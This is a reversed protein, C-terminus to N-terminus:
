IAPLKQVYKGATDTIAQWDHKEVFEKRVVSAGFAVAACGATFFDPMNEPRVGGVAVFDVDDIPGRLAKIYDIGLARAPFIKVM